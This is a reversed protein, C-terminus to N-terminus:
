IYRYQKSVRESDREIYTKGGELGFSHDEEYVWDRVVFMLNYDDRLKASQDSDMNEIGKVLNREVTELYDTTIKDKVNFMQIYSMATSIGCLAIIEGDTAEGDFMGENDVLLIGVETGNNTKRRYIKPWIWIGRTVSDLGAKWTFGHEHSIIGSLWDETESQSELYKIMLNLLLSKGGRTKGVISFVLIQLDKVDKSCLINELTYGRRNQVIKIKRKLEGSILEDRSSLVQIASTEPNAMKYGHMRNNSTLPQRGYPM